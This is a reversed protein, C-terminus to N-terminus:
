HSTTVPFEVGSGINGAMDKSQVLIRYLTSTSLGTLTVSHNLTSSTDEVFPTSTSSTVVPTTTSYFVKSTSLENTSWTVRVTSTGVFTIFNTLTPAISDVFNTTAFSVPSSISVNGAADRSRIVAYYTTSANLNTLTASHSLVKAGSSVVQTSTAGMNVPLSSSFFVASDAAENTSWTVVATTVGPTVVISSIAPAMTDTTTATSTAYPGYVKKAIGYPLVCNAPITLTGNKKQWGPAVLHGYGSTPCGATQASVAKINTKAKSNSKAFVSTPIFLLSSAVAIAALTRGTNRSNKM